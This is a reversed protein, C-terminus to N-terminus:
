SPAGLLDSVTMGLGEAYKELTDFRPQHKGRELKSILSQELGTALALETQTVRRALRATRLHDGLTRRSREAAAQIVTESFKSDILARATAADIHFLEGNVDLVEIANFDSAVVATELRLKTDEGTLDVIAVSGVLGDSFELWLHEAAHYRVSILAEPELAAVAKGLCAEFSSRRRTRIDFECVAFRSESMRMIDDVLEAYHRDRQTRVCALIFPRSERVAATWLHPTAKVFTTAVSHLDAVILTHLFAHTKGSGTGFTRVFQVRTENLESVIGELAERVATRASFSSVGSLDVSLIDPIEVAANM